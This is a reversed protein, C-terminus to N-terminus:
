WLKVNLNLQVEFKQVIFIKGCIISQWLRCNKYGANYCIKQYNSNCYVLRSGQISSHQMSLVILSLHGHVYRTGCSYQKNQTEPNM